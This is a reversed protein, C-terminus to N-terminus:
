GTCATMWADFQAHTPHATEQEWKSVTSQHVSIRAALDVQSLGAEKRAGRMSNGMGFRREPGTNHQLQVGRARLHSAKSRAWAPSIQLASAVQAASSSGLWVEIFEAESDTLPKNSISVM